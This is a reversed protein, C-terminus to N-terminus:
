SRWQEVSACVMKCIAAKEFARFRQESQERLWKHRREPTFCNAAYGVHSAMQPLRLM